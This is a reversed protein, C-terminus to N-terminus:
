NTTKFQQDHLSIDRVLNSTSTVMIEESKKRPSSFYYLSYPLQKADLQIQNLDRAGCIKEQASDTPVGGVCLWTHDLIYM